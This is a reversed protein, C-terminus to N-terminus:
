RANSTEALDGLTVFHVMYYDEGDDHKVTIVAANGNKRTAQEVCVTANPSQATATIEPLEGQAVCLVYDHVDSDFNPLALGNVEIAALRKNYVMTIDDIILRDGSSGGKTIKNTSFTVLIYNPNVATGVVQNQSNFYTFKYKYQHWKGDNPDKM